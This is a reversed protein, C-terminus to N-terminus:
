DSTIKQFNEAKIVEATCVAKDPKEALELVRPVLADAGAALADDVSCGELL